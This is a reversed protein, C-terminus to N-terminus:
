AWFLSILAKSPSHPFLAFTLVSFLLIGRTQKM